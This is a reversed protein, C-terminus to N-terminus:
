IGNPLTRPTRPLWFLLTFQCGHLGALLLFHLMGLSRFFDEQPRRSEQQVLLVTPTSPYRLLHVWGSLPHGGLNGLVAPHLWLLGWPLQGSHQDEFCEYKLDALFRFPFIGMFVFVIGRVVNNVAKQNQPICLKYKTSERYVCWMSTNTWSFYDCSIVFCSLDKIGLGKPFVLQISFLSESMDLAHSFYWIATIREKRQNPGQFCLAINGLYYIPM